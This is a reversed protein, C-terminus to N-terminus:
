IVQPAYLVKHVNKTYYFKNFFPYHILDVLIEIYNLDKFIIQKNNSPEIDSQNERYDIDPDYEIDFLFAILQKLMEELEVLEQNKLNTQQKYKFIRSIKM